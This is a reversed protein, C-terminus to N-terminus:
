GALMGGLMGGCACVVFSTVGQLLTSQVARDGMGSILFLLAFYAAGLLLGRLFKRRQARRGCYWGGAFCSIVYSGLICLEMREAAPQVKMMLFALGLLAAATVLCAIVLGKLLEAAARGRGQLVEM